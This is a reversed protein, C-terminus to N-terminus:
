KIKAVFSDVPANGARSLKQFLIKDQKISVVFTFKSSKKGMIIKGDTFLFPLVRLQGKVLAMNTSKSSLFFCDEWAPHGNKWNVNWKRGLFETIEVREDSTKQLDQVRKAIRKKELGSLESLANQYYELALKRTSNGTNLDALRELDEAIKIRKSPNTRESTSLVDRALKKAQESSSKAYFPIASGIDDKDQLIYNAVRLNSEPSDPNQRLVRFDPAVDEYAREIKKLRRMERKFLDQWHPYKGKRALSQIQKLQSQASAFDDQKLATEYGEYGFRLLQHGSFEDSIKPTLKKIYDRQFKSEDDMEFQRLLQRLGDLAAGVRGVQINLRISERLLVYKEAPRKSTSASKALDSALTIHAPGGQEYSDQYLEKITKLISKVRSNSPVPKRPETTQGFLSASTFGILILMIWSKIQKIM